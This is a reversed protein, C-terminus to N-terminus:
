RGPCVPKSGPSAVIERKRREERKCAKPARAPGPESFWAKALIRRPLREVPQAVFAASTAGLSRSWRARPKPDFHRCTLRRDKRSSETACFNEASASAAPTQNESYLAASALLLEKVVKVSLVEVVPQGRGTISDFRRSAQIQFPREYYNDITKM